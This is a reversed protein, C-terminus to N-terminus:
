ENELSDPAGGYDRSQPHNKHPSDRNKCLFKAELEAGTGEKARLQRSLFGDRWERHSILLYHLVFLGWLLACLSHAEQCSLCVLASQRSCVPSAASPM